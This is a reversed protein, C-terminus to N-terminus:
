GFERKYVEVLYHMEEPKATSIRVWDTYPKYQRGVQCGSELLKNYVDMADHGAHFYTFNSNSRIYKRGLDEFMKYLIELSENNKDIVFKQYEKDQYSVIAGMMAPYSATMASFRRLSKITDPNGFAFGIRISAFAHIKSATRIVLINPNEVALSVMSAYDDDGAYEFYAEDIVVMAKKSMELCFATLANKEIITPIPNNPNCLYVIQTDARVAKRMADLSIAMDEGVPVRTVTGGFREVYRTISGYTPDPAVVNGGNFGCIAGTAMLFETSGAGSAICEIPVNEMKAVIAELNRRTRFQYLHAKNHAENMVKLAKPNIGYPNENNTYRIPNDKSIPKGANMLTQASAASSLALGSAAATTGVLWERRTIKNTM